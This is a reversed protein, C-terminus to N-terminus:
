NKKLENKKDSANSLPNITSENLIVNNVDSKILKNNRYM